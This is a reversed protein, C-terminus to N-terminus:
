GLGPPWETGGPEHLCQESCSPHSPERNHSQHTQTTEQRSSSGSLTSCTPLDRSTCPVQGAVSGFRRLWTAQPKAYLTQSWQNRVIEQLSGPQLGIPRETFASSHKPLCEERTSPYDISTYMGTTGSTTVTARGDEGYDTSDRMAARKSDTMSSEVIRLVRMIWSSIEEPLQSINFHETVQTPLHKIFRETLVDNPPQDYALPHHKGRDNGEFSLLDAVINLEGKVHQSALCCNYKLLTRALKRAVNLQALHTGGANSAINATHNLWGIASTNDGIALICAQDSGPELCSLWVNVVMGVFELLNNVSGDGHIPSSKPIRVRWARGNLNYGGIGQPCADSWCIRDPQRTVLLNMSIGKRAQRLLSEWLRLDAKVAESLKTTRGGKTRQNPAPGVATRIRGLFHRAIPMVYAAHNLRGLLRELEKRDVRKSERSVRLDLMWADFKDRPLSVELRRTDVKWGLVVQVEAPSGEAVLKPQSLIPRRPIPEKGEGAHPRSTIHMALPVVHPQRACNEESDLFVNILDDIFGDVKGGKTEPVLVSMTRGKELPIGNPLRIPKPTTAQAPSRTTRHDWDICGSLENALDTVIESFMCWTPPNPSGGFTLRLSLFAKGDNVAITQAAASSSHAIRRYADSYDYKSILIRDSPHHIRMSVIYHLIRPFCWGYIMESYAGMDIRSNISRTPGSRNSSFSLDQTIRYKPTRTGDEQTTWQQVLGLPQVAAGPILHITNVPIPIVFGHNVDKGLLIGVQAPNEQASKHNGRLILTQMEEWKTAPDLERTFVYSMGKSLVSVLENFNPHRGLLPEIEAVTRFESGYHLTTESNEEILRSLDYGVKELEKANNEMAEDTLDFQIPPKTPTKTETRSIRVVERIFWDPTKFKDDPGLLPPLFFMEARRDLHEITGGITTNGTTRTVTAGRMRGRGKEENSEGILKADKRDAEVRRTENRRGEAPNPPTNTMGSSKTRSGTRPSEMGEGPRRSRAETIPDAPAPDIRGEPRIGRMRSRVNEAAGDTTRTRSLAREEERGIRNRRETQNNRSDYNIPTRNNKTVINETTREEENKTNAGNSPANTAM